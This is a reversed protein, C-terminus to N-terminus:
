LLNCVIKSFIFAIYTCPSQLKKSSTCATPRFICEGEDGKQRVEEANRKKKRAGQGGALVRDIQNKEYVGNLVTWKELFVKSFHVTRKQAKVIWSKVSYHEDKACLKLQEMKRSARKSKSVFFKGGCQVGGKLSAAQQFCDVREDLTMEHYCESQAFGDPGLFPCASNVMAHLLAEAWLILQDVDTLEKDGPISKSDPDFRGESWQKLAATWRSFVTLSVLPRRKLYFDAIVREIYEEDTMCSRIRSISSFFAGYRTNSYTDRMNQRWGKKVVFQVSEGFEVQCSAVVGKMSVQSALIAAFPFSHTVKWASCFIWTAQWVPSAWYRSETYQLARVPIRPQLFLGNRATAISFESPQAESVVLHPLFSLTIMPLIMLICQVGSQQGRM